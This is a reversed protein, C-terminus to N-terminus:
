KPGPQRAGKLSLSVEAAACTKHPVPRTIPINGFSTHTNKTNCQKFESGVPSLLEAPNLDEFSGVISLVAIQQM